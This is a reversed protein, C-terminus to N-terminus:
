DAMKYEMAICFTWPLFNLITPLDNYRDHRIHVHGIRFPKRSVFSCCAMDECPPIRSFINYWIFQVLKKVQVIFVPILFLVYFRKRILWKRVTCDFLEIDSVTRFLVCTYICKKKSLIVSVIDWFVSREEQSVRYLRSVSLAM